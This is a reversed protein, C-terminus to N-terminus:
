CETEESPAELDILFRHVVDDVCDNVSYGTHQDADVVVLDPVGQSVMGLARPASLASLIEFQEGSATLASTMEDVFTADDHVILIKKSM